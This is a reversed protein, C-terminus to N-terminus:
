IRPGQQAIKFLAADRLERARCLNDCLTASGQTKRFM